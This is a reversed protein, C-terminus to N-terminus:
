QGVLRYIEATQQACRQWSFDKARLLGATALTQRQRDDTLLVQLREALHEPSGREFLATSGASFEAMSTDASCLVPVGSSLGAEESEGQAADDESPSPTVKAATLRRPAIRGIPYATDPAVALAEHDGYLPGLLERSLVDALNERASWATGDPDVALEYAPSAMSQTSM